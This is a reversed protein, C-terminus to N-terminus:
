RLGRAMEVLDLADNLVIRGPLGKNAMEAVWEDWVGKCAEKWKNRETDSLVIFPPNGVKQDFGVIAAKASNEMVMHAAAYRQTAQVTAYEMFIKQIDDPLRNFADKNMAVMFVKPFINGQTRFQTVDKVGFALSGAFTFFCGDVVRKDLAAALEGTGVNVPVAGLAQVTHAEIKGSSRIKMGKFDSLVAVEKRGLYQMSHIPAMIMLKVERFETSACYKVLLQHAVIGATESDPYMFPLSNVAALPFRGPNEEPDILAIDCLGTAVADYADPGKVLTGGPHRIIKVRGGAANEIDNAWPELIAKTLSAQPPAHYSFTLEIPRDAASAPGPAAAVFLFGTVVILRIIVFLHKNM